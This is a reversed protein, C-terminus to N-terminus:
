RPEILLNYRNLSSLSQNYKYQCDLYDKTISFFYNVESLYDIVNIQGGKYALLLLPLYSNDGFIRNYEDIQRQLLEMDRLTSIVDARRAAIASENSIRASEARTLAAARAKRNQFFPLSMSVSFGNFVDGIEKQYIYGVSFGPLRQRSAAKANLEEYEASLQGASIVQDLTEIQALYDDASLKPEVAYANFGSLDLEADPCMAQIEAKLRFIAGDLDAIENNINFQEIQMKKSDLITLEGGRYAKETQAQVSDTNEKILKLLNWKLNLYVLENLKRRVDLAIDLKRSMLLMQSASFGAKAAQSRARYLGPWDFSQSVEIEFKNGAGNRGWLQTVGVEPNALSNADTAELRETRLDQSMSNLEPNNALVTRVVDTFDGATSETEAMAPSLTLLALIPLIIRKM